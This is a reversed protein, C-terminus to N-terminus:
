TKNTTEHILELKVREIVSDWDGKAPQRILRLSPYWPSTERDLMWRWDPANALLAWVPRGMAGALHVVATDVSILLDMQCIWRATDEFTKITEAPTTSIEAYKYADASRPGFQLSYFRAGPVDLLTALHEINVSRNKDNSHERRGAWVLGVRLVPEDSLPWVAPPKIYPIENPVTELRTKFIRPLSLLPCHYDFDEDGATGDRNIDAFETISDIGEVDKLVCVLEPVCLFRVKAAGKAKVMKAYRIFQISDGFGQEHTLLITKGKLDQGNWQPRKTKLRRWTFTGCKWRWEYNIFGRRFDGFTLAILASNWRAEACHPDKQIAKYFWDNATKLDGLVMQTTAFNQMITPHGPNMSLAEAFSRRAMEMRDLAQMILGINNLAFSKEVPHHGAALVVEAFALGAAMLKPYHKKGDRESCADRWLNQAHEWLEPCSSGEPQLLHSGALGAASHAEKGAEGAQVLRFPSDENLGSQAEEEPIHRVVDM